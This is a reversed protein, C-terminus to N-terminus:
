ETLKCREEIASGHLNQLKALSLNIFNIEQRQTHFCQIYKTIPCAFNSNGKKIKNKDGQDLM